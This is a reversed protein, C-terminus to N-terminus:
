KGNYLASDVCSIYQISGREAGKISPVVTKNESIMKDLIPRALEGDLGDNEIVDIKVIRHNEVTVDLELHLFSTSNKGHYVGDEVNELQVNHFPLNSAEMIQAKKRSVLYGCYMIFIIAIVMLIKSYDVKVKM